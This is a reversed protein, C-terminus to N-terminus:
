LNETSLSWRSFSLNGGKGGQFTAFFSGDLVSGAQGVRISNPRVDDFASPWHLRLTALLSEVAQEPSLASLKPDAM